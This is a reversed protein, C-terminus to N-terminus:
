REGAWRGTGLCGICWGPVRQDDLGTGLCTPCIGLTEPQRYSCGTRDYPQSYPPSMTLLMGGCQRHEDHEGFEVVCPLLIASVARM